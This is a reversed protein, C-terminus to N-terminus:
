PRWGRGSALLERSQQSIKDCAQVLRVLESEELHGAALAAESRSLLEALETGPRGTARAWSDVLKENGGQPSVGLAKCLRARFAHNLIEWALDAARARRFANALGSVFELASIQRTVPVAQVSGFRQCSGAIAAALIALAQLFVLGFPGRGLYIFVNRSQLHGHCKEDFLIDGDATSILNVLFQFNSWHSPKDPSTVLHRNAGLDPVSGVVVEGKGHKVSTFLAGFADAVLTTGGDLRADTTVYLAPAHAFEPRSGDTDFEEDSVPKMEHADLRLKHLIARGYTSSFGDLYVLKNGAEV